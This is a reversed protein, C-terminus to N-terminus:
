SRPPLHHRIGENSDLCAKYAADGSRKLWDNNQWVKPAPPLSQSLASSIPQEYEWVFYCAKACTLLYPTLMSPVFRETAWLAVASSSSSPRKGRYRRRRSLRMQTKRRSCLTLPAAGKPRRHDRHSVKFQQFRKKYDIPIRSASRITLHWRPPMPTVCLADGRCSPRVYRNITALGLVHFGMNLCADGNGAECKPRLVAEANDM